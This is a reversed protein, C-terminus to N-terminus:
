WKAPGLFSTLERLTKEPIARLQCEWVIYVEFGLKTLATFNARDRALNKRMKPRWYSQNSAPVGRIPCHPDKHQHWFCGHVLVIKKRRWFVLDPRGPLAKSHLRYRYGASFLYKRVALEPKTNKSRIARM